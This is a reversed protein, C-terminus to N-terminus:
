RASARRCCCRDLSARRAAGLASRAGDDGLRAPYRLEGYFDVVRAPGAGCCRSPPTLLTFCVLIPDTQVTRRVNEAFSDNSFSKMGVAMAVGGGGAAAVALAEDVAKGKGKDQATFMPAEDLKSLSSTDTESAPTEIHEPLTPPPYPEFDKPQAIQLM